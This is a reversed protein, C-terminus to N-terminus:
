KAEKIHVVQATPRQLVSVNLTTLRQNITSAAKGDEQWEEVLGDLWQDTVDVCSTTSCRKHLYAHVYKSKQAGKQNEWRKAWAADLANSLLRPKARDGTGALTTHAM